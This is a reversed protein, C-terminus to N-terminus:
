SRPSTRRLVGSCPRTARSTRRSVVGQVFDRYPYLAPFRHQAAAGVIRVRHALLARDSGMILADARAAVIAAFSRDLEDAGGAGVLPKLTLRLTRAM